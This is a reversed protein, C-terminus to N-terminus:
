LSPAAVNWFIASFSQVLINKKGARNMLVEQNNQASACILHHGAAWDSEMINM